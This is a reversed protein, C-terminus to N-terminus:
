SHSSRFCIEEGRYSDDFYGKNYLIHGNCITTQVQWNFTHGMLPSWKCKSQIVDETVTYPSHQQVLIIDAKYGKRIFGRQNIEFLKAPNHCMLEVVREITLVGQDVLELMASLSFQVMPMGSM